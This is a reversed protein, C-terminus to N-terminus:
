GNDTRRKIEGELAVILRDWYKKDCDDGWLENHGTRNVMGQQDHMDRLLIDVCWDSLKPLLNILYDVTTGVIYTRRGCAYREASILMSEFKKTIEVKDAM